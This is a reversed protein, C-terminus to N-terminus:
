APLTNVKGAKTKKQSASINSMFVTYIIKQPMKYDKMAYSETLIYVFQNITCKLAYQQNVYGKLKSIMIDSITLHCM